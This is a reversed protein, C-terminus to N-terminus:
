TSPPNDPRGIQVDPTILSFEAPSPRVRAAV